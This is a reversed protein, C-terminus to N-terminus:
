SWGPFVENLPKSKWGAEEESLVAFLWRGKPTMDVTGGTNVIVARLSHTAGHLNAGKNGAEADEPHTNG